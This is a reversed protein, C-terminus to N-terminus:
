GDRLARAEDRTERREVRHEARWLSFADRICHAWSLREEKSVNEGKEAAHCAERVASANELWSVRLAKLRALFGPPHDDGAGREAAGTAHAAREPRETPKGAGERAAAAALPVLLLLAMACALVTTRRM